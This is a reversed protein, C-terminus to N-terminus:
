DTFEIEFTVAEGARLRAWQAGLPLTVGGLSLGERNVVVAGAVRYDLALDACGQADPCVTRASAIELGDYLVTAEVCAGGEVRLNGSILLTRDGVNGPGVGDWWRPATPSVSVRNDCAPATLATAAVVAMLVRHATRSSLHIRNM